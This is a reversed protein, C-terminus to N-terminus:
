LQEGLTRLVPRLRTVWMKLWPAAASLLRPRLGWTPSSSCGFGRLPSMSSQPSRAM